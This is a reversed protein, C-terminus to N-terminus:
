TSAHRSFARAAPNSIFTVSSATTPKTFRVVAVSFPPAITLTGVDPWLRRRWVRGRCSRSRDGSGATAAPDGGVLLLFFFSSTSIALVSDQSRHRDDREPRVGWFEWCRRRSIACRGERACPANGECGARRDGAGSQVHAGHAAREAPHEVNRRRQRSRGHRHAHREADRVARVIRALCHDITEVAMCRRTSTERTASWTPMRSIASSSTTSAGRSTARGSQRHDGEREDGAASRLDGGETVPVLIRDEGPYPKEIGCNFFYSVHPYKETEAVRLNTMHQAAMVEAFSGSLSQPPFVVPFTFTRDYQTMTTM